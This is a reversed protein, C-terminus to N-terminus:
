NSVSSLLSQYISELDKVYQKTNFLAAESRNVEIRNKLTQIHGSNALDLAKAEYDALSEVILESLGLATLQSAAVRGAYTHGQLTLVPVGAWLADAATAHANYNPTDLFLDALRLRSLHDARAPVRASFILRKSEVGRADAESQLNLMAKESHKSLWLVSDPVQKLLNMWVDFIQPTIKYSNNFCSFIFGQDPLGQAAKTPLSGFKEPAISTDVPFFSNPLYFIKETYYIQHERPIVVEDAILADYFQSGSTGAFGLYNIQIPAVKRAFLKTRAGATHGNLDIAIDIGHQLVFEQAAQDSLDFLDHTKDFISSLNKEVEDGARKGLFFGHIEYRSQDHYKILNEMIIGVPHEKFDSSFYGVRIKERDNFSRLGLKPQNLSPYRDNVYIQAARKQLELSAPTSLFVFPASVPNNKEALDLMESVTPDAADWICSTLKTNLLNGILYPHLPKLAFAKQYSEYASEGLKLELLVNGHNSWAEAYNPNLNLANEHALRAEDFRGLDCFANGYNTWSEPYNGNLQISKQYCDLAELAFGLEVLLNGRNSWVLFDNPQLGIARDYLSMAKDYQKLKAYSTGMDTLIQVNNPLLRNLREYTQVAESYLESGHQAKALNALLESNKPDLSAAKSFFPVAEFMKGQIAMALGMVQLAVLDKPNIRLISQALRQASDLQQNQFDALMQQILPAYAPIM